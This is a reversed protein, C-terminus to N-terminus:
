KKWEKIEYGTSLSVLKDGKLVHPVRKKIIPDYAYFLQSSSKRTNELIETLQPNRQNQITQLRQWYRVKLDLFLGMLIVVGVLLGFILITLIFDPIHIGRGILFKNINPTTLIVLMGFNIYTLFSAVNDVRFKLLVIWDYFKTM